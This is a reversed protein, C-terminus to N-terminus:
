KTTNKEYKEANPETRKMVTKSDTLGTTTPDNVTQWVNVVVLGLVYPNSFAMKFLNGVASWTTIDAVTLGAYALVPLVIAMLFQVVFVPNKFRLKLNINM